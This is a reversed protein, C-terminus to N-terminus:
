SRTARSFHWCSVVGVLRLVRRAPGGTAPVPIVASEFRLARHPENAFSRGGGARIMRSCPAVRVGVRERSSPSLSGNRDGRGRLPLPVPHPPAYSTPCPNTFKGLSCRRSHSGARGQQADQWGPCPAATRCPRSIRPNHADADALSRAVPPPTNRSPG